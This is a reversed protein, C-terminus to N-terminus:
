KNTFKKAINALPNDTNTTDATAAETNAAQTTGTAPKETKAPKGKLLEKLKSEAIQLAQKKEQIKQNYEARKADKDKAKYVEVEIDDELKDLESQLKEKEGITASLDDFFNEMGPKPTYVKNGNEDTTIDYATEMLNTAIREEQKSDLDRLNGNKDVYGSYKAYANLIKPSSRTLKYYQDSYPTTSKTKATANAKDAAAKNRLAENRMGLEAQRIDLGRKTAEMEEKWM